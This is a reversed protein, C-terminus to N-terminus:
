PRQFTVRVPIWMRVRVGNKRAGSYTSRRAVNQAEEDLVDFGSSRAVRVQEVNGSTGVLVQLETTGSARLREAARPYSAPHWRTIRAETVGPGATVLDGERVPPPTPAPTATARV